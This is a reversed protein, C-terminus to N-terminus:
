PSAANGAVLPYGDFGSFKTGQVNHHGAATDRTTCMVAFLQVGLEVCRDRDVEIRDVWTPKSMPGAALETYKANHGRAESLCTPCGDVSERIPDLRQCGGHSLSVDFPAAYGAYSSCSPGIGYSISFCDQWTIGTHLIQVATDDM